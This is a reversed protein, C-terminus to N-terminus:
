EQVSENASEAEPNEAPEAIELPETELLAAQL